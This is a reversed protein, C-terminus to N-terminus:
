GNRSLEDAFARIKDVRVRIDKYNIDTQLIQSGVRQAEKAQDASNTRRAGAELADMLLYRLEKGLRDDVLPHAEIGHRLTDIAEEHWGRHIYCRGLYEHAAARNKPDAKAQQFASIADDIRGAAYLRRGLEFRLSMDTPYNKVRDTFENLEFAVQKKVSENFKQKLEADDPTQQVKARLGRLYRTIQRMQIDGMRVRFRYQGTSEWADKLLKIAEAESENSQKQVLADVLKQMKDLDQPDEELEARRREIMRDVASETKDVRQEEETARQGDADRIAETFRKGYGGAKISNEAELDKLQQMLQANGPDQQLAHRCAEVAKDFQDVAAFLDTLTLYIKKDNKTQQNWELAITGIWLAVEGLNIDQGVADDAEVCRKMFETMLSVDTPNKALLTEAHLMKDIPDKGGSKLKEGFGAPKGGKVKRRKAADYLAEHQGINDPDHRFGNIWCEIAYDYNGTDAVTRAHEFFREAKRPDRKFGQEPAPADKDAEGNGNGKTSSRKFFAL